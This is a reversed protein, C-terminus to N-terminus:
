GAVEFGAAVALALVRDIVEQASLRSADLHVADGAAQLPSTARTSDLRDRRALDVAVAQVVDGNNRVGADDDAARRAARVEPDADLFIKVPADPVVVTGIDRGELVAGEATLVRQLRVLHRRVGPVASVTSVAATVEPGRIEASVDEGDLRVGPAEPDVSLSIDAAAVVRDLADADALDIGARLAALTAARYTAGTDVYALGLRRAVGRAVTSKGSGSPGDLAIVRPSPAPSM